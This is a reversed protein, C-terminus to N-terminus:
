RPGDAGAGGAGGRGAAPPLSAVHLTQTPFAFASGATEVVDIFRMLVDERLGRFENMDATEFWTMIELDLSSAGFGAFRVVITDKWVRPHEQLITRFGDLIQRLQAGTTAYEVGITIAMRIRDREAFCEVRSEAVQANPISIVTRDLTRVRTSRLGIAEITGMQQDIKVFDGERFPQDVGISFAGFLNEITKQAALAFAIGGIGLGAILGAVPYGLHSLLSIVAIILVVVKGVRVALPVLSRGIPKEKAWASSAVSRQVQDLIRLVGWFLCVFLLGRIASGLSAEAPAYLELPEVLARLVILTWAWRAPGATVRLMEDDWVTDTRRALRGLIARTLRWMVYGLAYAVVLLIPLALWQWWLLELPGARLLWTPLHDTLWRNPLRQYWADVRAVVAASFRWRGDGGRVLTVAEAGGPGPVAALEELEPPRGDGRNGEPTDDVREPEFWVHRDLVAKLRRALEPGRDRTRPDLTLFSAARTYDADRAAELFGILARRPTEGGPAHVAGANREAGGPAAGPQALAVGPAAGPQALAVGGFVLLVLLWAACCAITALSSRSM